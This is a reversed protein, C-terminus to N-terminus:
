AAEETDEDDEDDEDPTRSRGAELQERIYSAQEKTYKSRQHAFVGSWRNDDQWKLFAGELMHREFDDAGVAASLIDAFTAIADPGLVLKGCDVKADSGLAHALGRLRCEDQHERQSREREEDTKLTWVQNRTDYGKESYTRRILGERALLACVTSVIREAREVARNDESDNWKREYRGPPCIGCARSLLAVSRPGKALEALIDAKALPHDELRRKKTRRGKM